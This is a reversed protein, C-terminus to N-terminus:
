AVMLLDQTTQLLKNGDFFSVLRRENANKTQRLPATNSVFDAVANYMGWATGKFNQLDDKESYILHIRSITEEKSKDALATPNAEFLERFFAEENIKKSAMQWATKEMGEMYKVAMGLAEKAQQKKGEINTTHRCRWIRQAGQLAMQLTNNCVVRVNTIGATLASSGDHSNTFFLYNEVDDGLLEKNPLKVLLFIRRGNFLSGATEYRCEVHKNQVIGDVFDFAETNQVIKYRNRVVGLAENTDSRVNAFYGPIKNGNAFVPFQNVTWDLRAIRIADESTPAEEVVTGIGHWPREKASLMWDNEYLGASM